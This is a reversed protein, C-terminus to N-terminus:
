VFIIGLSLTKNLPFVTSVPIALTMLRKLNVKKKKEKDGKPTHLVRLVKVKKMGSFSGLAFLTELFCFSLASIVLAYYTVHMKHREEGLVHYVLVGKTISYVLSGVSLLIVVAHCFCKKSSLKTDNPNDIQWITIQELYHYTFFLINVRLFTLVALDFVSDWISFKTVSTEMYNTNGGTLWLALTSFLDLVLLVQIFNTFRLMPITYYGGVVETQTDAAEKQEGEEVEILNVKLDAM